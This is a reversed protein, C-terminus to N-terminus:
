QIASYNVPVPQSTPDPLGKEKMTSFDLNRFDLTVDNEKRKTAM